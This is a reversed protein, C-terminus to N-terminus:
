YCWYKQTEDKDCGRPPLAGALEDGMFACDLPDDSNEADVTIEEMDRSFAGMIEAM